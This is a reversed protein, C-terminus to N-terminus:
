RGSSRIAEWVKGPTFPMDLHKIGFPALADLV